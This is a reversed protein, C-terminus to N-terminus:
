ANMCVCRFWRPKLWLVCLCIAYALLVACYIAVNQIDSFVPFLTATSVILLIYLCRLIFETNAKKRLATGVATGLVAAVSVGVYVPWDAAQLISNPSAIFVILRIVSTVVCVLVRVGRQVDMDVNLVSFSLIQPPGGVGLMGSLVGSAIGCSLFMFWTATVSHTSSIPPFARSCKIRVLQAIRVVCLRSVSSQEEENEMIPETPGLYMSAGLYLGRTATVNVKMSVASECDPVSEDRLVDDAPCADVDTCYDITSSDMPLVRVVLTHAARRKSAQQVSLWLKVCGFVAFLGGIFAKLM